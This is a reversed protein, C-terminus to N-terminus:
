VAHAARTVATRYAAAWLGLILWAWIRGASFTWTYYDLLGVVTVAALAGSAVALEPTWMPRHALMAIWPALVLVLYAVGGVIGTEATVDLLVVNAPQYTYQFSPDAAQMAEPLGGAGVGLFPHAAIVTTTAQSLATREHISRVETISVGSPDARAGLADRFPLAFPAAVILGAACTLGLRRVAPRDGITLLMGGLVALGALLGLWAGRSFTILLAAAGLSAVVLSLSRGGQPRISALGVIPLLGFVLIGGLINPHDTLGYARLFRTGDAATIVSVGLSPTLVHEGLRALGLSQQGVVQGIGVISQIAIMVVVPAGLRAPRAIENCVFLELAALAMLRISSMVALASDAASPVGLWSVILLAGVPCALFRPGLWVARPRLLLSCLWLCLALLLPIDSWFLLVDTYDGYITGTPRALLTFRARFPSLVVMVAFALWAGRQAWAALLTRSSRSM